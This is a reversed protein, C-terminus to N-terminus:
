GLARLEADIKALAEASIGVQPFSAIVKLPMGEAMKRQPHTLMGPVYKEIIKTAVPDQLLEGLTSDQSLGGKTDKRKQKKGLLGLFGIKLLEGLTSKSTQGGVTQEKNTQEKVPYEKAPQGKIRWAVTKFGQLEVIQAILPYPLSGSITGENEDTIGFIMGNHTPGGEKIEVSGYHYPMFKLFGPDGMGAIVPNVRGFELLKAEGSIEAWELDTGSCNSCVTVPPYESSGCRKCKLSLIKGEELSDYFKKVVPEM